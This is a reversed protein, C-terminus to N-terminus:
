ADTAGTHAPSNGIEVTLRGLGTIEADIVDGERLFTKSAFGVGAPSGTFLVDGPELTIYKSLLSIQEPVSWIMERTHSDQKLEGNVWLKLELNQADVFKSPVIKPGFPSSKDFAKGCFIDFQKPHRLNFQWDRASIDLGVAYGAIHEAARELPIDKGGEGIVVVLEIEWDLQSTGKPYPVTRGPGTLCTTPPKLFFFPDSSGKDFDTIGADKILHDRYNFGMFIAKRPFQIPALVDDVQASIAISRDSTLAIREIMVDIVTKNVGWNQLVQYWDGESSTGLLQPAVSALPWWRGHAEVVATPNGEHRVTLLSIVEAM